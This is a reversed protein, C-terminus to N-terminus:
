PNGKRTQLDGATLRALPIRERDTGGWLVVVSKPNWAIIPKWVGGVNVHTAARAREVTVGKPPRESPKRDAARQAAVAAAREKLLAGLRDHAREAQRWDTRSHTNVPRYRAWAADIDADIEELSRM